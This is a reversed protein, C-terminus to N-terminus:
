PYPLIELLSQTKASSGSVVFVLGIYKPSQWLAHFFATEGNVTHEEAYQHEL